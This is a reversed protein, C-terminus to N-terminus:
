ESCPTQFSGTNEYYSQAHETVRELLNMIKRGYEPDIAWRESLDLVTVASGRIVHDFRPDVQRTPLEYESAYAYLHQLHAEVGEAISRFALGPNDATEAGLGCFNNHEIPVSGTFRLFNTELIMQCIAVDSNIGYQGARSMYQSLVEEAFGIDCNEAHETFFSIYVEEPYVGMGQISNIPLPM